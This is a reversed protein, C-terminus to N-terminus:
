TQINIPISHELKLDIQNKFKLRMNNSYNGISLPVEVSMTVKMLVIRQNSM